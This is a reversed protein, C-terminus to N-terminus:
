NLIVIKVIIVVSTFCIELYVPIVYQMVLLYLDDENDDHRNLYNVTYGPSIM